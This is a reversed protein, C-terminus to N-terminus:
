RAVRPTLSPLVLLVAVTAFALDAACWLGFGRLM